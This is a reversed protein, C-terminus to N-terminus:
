RSWSGQTVSHGPKNTASVTDEKCPASEKATHFIVFGNKIEWEPHEQHCSLKKALQRYGGRALEYLPLDDPCGELKEWKFESRTARKLDDFHDENRLLFYLGMPLGEVRHVFLAAHVKSDWSLAQFPLTMQKRQKERARSGLPLVLHSLFILKQLLSFMGEGNDNARLVVFVYKALPLLSITYMVLSLAGLLDVDSKIPVKSFVDTFVYLPNTGMDGYVVSLTQFALAVTQWLCPDKAHHDQFGVIEMDEVDFSDVRKLKKILRRRVSGYGDRSERSENEDLLSWPPSESDMESGDVWQASTSGDGGGTRGVLRVSIEEIRKEEMAGFEVVQSSAAVVIAITSATAHSTPRRHPSIPHPDEAIKLLGEPKFSGMELSPFVLHKEVETKKLHSIDRNYKARIQMDDHFSFIHKTAM